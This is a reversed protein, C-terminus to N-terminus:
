HSLFDQTGIVTQLPRWIKKERQEAKVVGVFLHFEDHPVRFWEDGVLVDVDRKKEM